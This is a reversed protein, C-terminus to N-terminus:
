RQPWPKQPDRWLNDVEREVSPLKWVSNVEAFYYPYTDETYYETTLGQEANLEYREAIVRQKLLAIRFREVSQILRLSGQEADDDYVCFITRLLASTDTREGRMQVDTSNFLQHLIYPAKKTYSTPDPLRMLHVEFGREREVVDEEQMRLPLIINDVARETFRKICELFDVM